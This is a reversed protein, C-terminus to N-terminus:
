LFTVDCHVKIIDIPKGIVKGRETKRALYTNRGERTESETQRKNQVKLPTCALFNDNKKPAPAEDVGGGPEM